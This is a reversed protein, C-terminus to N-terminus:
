EKFIHESVGYQVAWADLTGNGSLERIVIDALGAFAPTKSSSVAVYRAPGLTTTHVVMDETKTAEMYVGPVAIFNANGTVLARQLDPYSAYITFSLQADENKENYALLLRHGASDRVVGLEMRELAVDAYAPRCLIYVTDTYYPSSYAYSTSTPAIQLAIALDIKEDILHARATYENVHVFELAVDPDLDPLAERSIARALEVEFGEEKSSFGPMDELIGIRLVGDRRARQIEEASMVQAQPRLLLFLLALVVVGAGIPLLLRLRGSLLQSITRKATRQRRRRPM